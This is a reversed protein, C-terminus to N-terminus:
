VSVGDKNDGDQHQEQAPAAASESTNAHTATNEAETQFSPYTRRLGWDGFGRSTESQGMSSTPQSSPAAAEIDVLNAPPNADYVHERNDQVVQDQHDEEENDEVRLKKKQRLSEAESASLDSIHDDDDMSTYHSTIPQIEGVIDRIQDKSDDIKPTASAAYAKDPLGKSLERVQKAYIEIRAYVSDIDDPDQDTKVSTQEPVVVIEQEEKMSGADGFNSDEGGMSMDDLCEGAFCTTGLNIDDEDFCQKVREDAMIKTMQEATYAAGDKMKEETYAMGGQVIESDHCQQMKGTAFNVGKQVSESDRAAKMVGGTYAMTDQVMENDHCQKMKGGAYKMSKQVVDSDHCQKMKGGAYRMTQKGKQKIEGFPIVNCLCEVVRAKEMMYVIAAALLFALGTYVHHRSLRMKEHYVEFPDERKKQIGTNFNRVYNDIKGYPDPCEGDPSIFNMYNCATSYALLEVSTGYVYDYGGWNNGDFIQVCDVESMANNLGDVTDKVGSYYAPDCTDSSYTHVAFGYRSDCGMGYGGQCEATSYASYNSGYSSGSYSNANKAYNSYYNKLERHEDHSEGENNGDGNSYTKSASAYPSFDNLGAYNMSRAFDNFGANTYFSNIFTGKNCGATQKGDSEKLVGYLSFAVNAGMPPVSGMYWYDNEDVGGDEDIAGNGYKMWSWVCSHYRVYLAQFKSLDQMVNDADRWYMEEYM